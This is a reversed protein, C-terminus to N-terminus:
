WEQTPEDVTEEHWHIPRRFDRYRYAGGSVLHTLLDRVGSGVLGWVLLPEPAVELFFGLLAPFLIAFPNGTLDPSGQAVWVGTINTAIGYLYSVIGVAILTLSHKMGAENFVLELITVSVALLYGMWQYKPVIFNFGDVSFQLSIFWLVLAVLIATLRILQTYRRENL